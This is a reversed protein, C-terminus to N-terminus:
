FHDVFDCHGAIPLSQDDLVQEGKLDGSVLNIYIVSPFDRIDDTPPVDGTLKLTTEDPFFYGGTNWPFPNGDPHKAFKADSNVVVLLDEPSADGIRRHCRLYQDPVLKNLTDVEGYTLAWTYIATIETAHNVAAECSGNIRSGGLDWQYKINVHRRHSGNPAIPLTDDALRRAGFVSSFSRELEDCASRTLNRTVLTLSISPEHRLEAKWTYGWLLFSSQLDEPKDSGRGSVKTWEPVKGLDSTDIADWHVSEWFSKDTWYDSFAKQNTTAAHGVITMLAGMVVVASVAETSTLMGKGEKPLM